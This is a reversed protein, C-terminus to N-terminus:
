VWPFIKKAISSLNVDKISWNLGIKIFNDNKLNFGMTIHDNMKNVHESHIFLRSQM